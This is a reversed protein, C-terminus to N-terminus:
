YKIVKVYTPKGDALITKILYMGSPLGSLDLEFRPSSPSIEQLVNGMLDVIQCRIANESLVVHMKGSTPNPYVELLSINNEDVDNQSVYVMWTGGSPIWDTCSDMVERFFSYTGPLLNSPTYEATNSNDLVIGNQSWRYTVTAQPSTANQVSVIPSCTGGNGIMESGSKIEGPSLGEPEGMEVDVVVEYGTVDTVKLPFSGAGIDHFTYSNGSAPSPEGEFEFVFPAAGGSVVVTVLGDDGGNCTPETVSLDVVALDNDKFEAVLQRDGNVVFSYTDSTSVQTGNETWRDFLYGTNASASVTVTNGWGYYGGGVVNGGESPHPSLSILGVNGVLAETVDSFDALGGYYNTRVSYQYYGDPVNADVYSTSAVDTAVTQDDRYISYTYTGDTIDTKILWSINNDVPYWNGDEYYLRANNSGEYNETCAAMYQYTSGDNYFVVM